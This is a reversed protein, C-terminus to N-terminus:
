PNKRELPSLILLALAGLKFLCPLLAYGFSLAGLSAESRAGSEYGLAALLPLAIGAAMALTFKSIFNWIGFELGGQHEKGKLADSLLSPLVALDGGLAAGSLLCIAYFMTSNSSDLGYAWIFSLIALTMSGILSRRKGIRAALKVWLPMALVAALFYLGLFAGSSDPAGLVDSVFFLFLTATISPPIANIFFIAFIWRLTKNEWVTRFNVEGAQPPPYPPPTKISSPSKLTFLAAIIVGAAIWAFLHYAEESSRGETLIQPLASAVLVGLIIAGERWASIRTTERPDTSLSLGGAYFNVSLLSFSLYTICLLLMLLGMASESTAYSPLFFLAIVGLAMVLAAAVSLLRRKAALRDSLVGIFPDAVCDVIRTIFMAFGIAALSLPLFDAYYKPLHVYLPLGVFGLPVGLLAYRLLQARAVLQSM